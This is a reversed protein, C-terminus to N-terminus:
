HSQLESTHEESRGHCKVMEDQVPHLTGDAKKLSEVTKVSKGDLSPLLQICANVPRYDVGTGAANLEGVMVVCAGCDGEACGEKTGLCHADERLWELVTRTPAAGDISVVQGRHVFRVPRTQLSAPTSADM